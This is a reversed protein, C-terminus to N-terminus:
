SGEAYKRYTVEYDTEKKLTETVQKRDRKHTYILKITNTDQTYETKGDMVKLGIDAAEIGFCFDCFTTIM